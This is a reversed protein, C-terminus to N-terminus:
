WIHSQCLDKGLRNTTMAVRIFVVNLQPQSVPESVWDMIMLASLIAADLCAHKLLLQSNKMQFCSPSSHSGPQKSSPRLAWGWLPWWWPWVELLVVGVAVLGHRRLTSSGPGLMNLGGCASLLFVCLILAWKKKLQRLNGWTCFFSVRSEYPMM